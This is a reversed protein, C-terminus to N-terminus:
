MEQEDIATLTLTSEEEVVLTWVDAHTSSIGVLISLSSSGGGSTRGSSAVGFILPVAAAGFVDSPDSAEHPRLLLLM